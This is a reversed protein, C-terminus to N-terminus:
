ILGLRKLEIRMKTPMNPDIFAGESNAYLDPPADEPRLYRWGQFPRRRVPEVLVHNPKLEILCQNRGEHDTDTHLGVISQRVQILRRIVWYLSGGGLLDNSRRPTMRTHVIVNGDANISRAQRAELQGPDEIGVALKLLNIGV